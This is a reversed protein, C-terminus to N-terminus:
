TPTGPSAPVPAPAHLPPDTEGLSAMPQATIGQARNAGRSNKDNTLYRVILEFLLDYTQKLVESLACDSHVRSIFYHFNCLHIHHQVEMLQMLTDTPPQGWVHLPDIGPTALINLHLWGPRLHQPFSETWLAFNPTDMLSILELFEVDQLYHESDLADHTTASMNATLTLLKNQLSQLRSIVHPDVAGGRLKEAVRCNAAVLFTIIAPNNVDFASDPYQGPTTSLPLLRISEVLCWGDQLTAVYDDDLKRAAV